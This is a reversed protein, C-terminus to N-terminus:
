RHAEQEANKEAIAFAVQRGPALFTDRYARSAHFAEAEREVEARRAPSMSM